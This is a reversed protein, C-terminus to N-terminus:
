PAYGGTWPDRGLAALLREGAPRDPPLAIPDAFAGLRTDRDIVLPLEALLRAAVDGPIPRACGAGRAADWGHAAAEIAGVLILQHCRLPVGDVAVSRRGRLHRAAAILGAAARDLDRHLTGATVPRTSSPEAQTPVAGSALSAALLHLSQTLHGIAEGVTWDTCPSPRELDALTIQATSTTAYALAPVLVAEVARDEGAPPPDTGRPV